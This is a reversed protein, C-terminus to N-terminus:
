FRLKKALFPVQLLWYPQVEQALDTPSQRLWYERYFSLTVGNGAAVQGFLHERYKDVLRNRFVAIPSPSEFEEPAGLWVLFRHWRYGWSKLVKAAAM